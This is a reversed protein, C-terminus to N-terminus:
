RTWTRWNGLKWSQPHGPLLGSDFPQVDGRELLQQATQDMVRYGGPVIFYARGTVSSGDNVYTLVLRADPRRLRDLAKSVAKDMAKVSRQPLAAWKRAAGTHEDTTIPRSSGCDTTAPGAPSSRSDPRKSSQRTPSAGWDATEALWFATVEADREFMNEAMRSARRVMAELPVKETM